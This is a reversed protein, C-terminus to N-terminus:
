GSILGRVALVFTVLGTAINSYILISTLPKDFSGPKRVLVRHVLFPLLGAAGSVLAIWLGTRSGSALGAAGWFLVAVLPLHLLVFGSMGGPLGLIEWEKWFASEIEHLVLITANLVYFITLLDMM